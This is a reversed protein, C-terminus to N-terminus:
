FYQRWNRIRFAGLKNLFENLCKKKDAAVSKDKDPKTVIM